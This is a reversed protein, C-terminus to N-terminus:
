SPSCSSTSSAEEGKREDVADVMAALAMIGHMPILSAGQHFTWADCSAGSDRQWSGITRDECFQVVRLAKLVQGVDRVGNGFKEFTERSDISWRWSCRRWWISFFRLHQLGSFESESIVDLVGLTERAEEAVFDVALCQLRPCHESLDGFIFRTESADAKSIRLTTVKHGGFSELLRGLYSGVSVVVAPDSLDLNVHRPLTRPRDSDNPQQEPSAVARDDLLVMALVELNPWVDLGRIAMVAEFTATVIRVNPFAHAVFSAHAAGIVSLTEVRPWTCPDSASLINGVANWTAKTLSVRHLTAASRRLLDALATTVWGSYEAEMFYRQVTIQLHELPRLGLLLAELTDSSTKHIRLTRLQSLAVVAHVVEDVNLMDDWEFVLEQLYPMTALAAATSAATIDQGQADRIAPLTSTVRLTRVFTALPSGVALMELLGENRETLKISRYVFPLTAARIGRSVSSLELRSANDCLAYITVLVDNNLTPLM